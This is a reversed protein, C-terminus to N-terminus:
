FCEKLCVKRLTHNCNKYLLYTPYFFIKKRIDPSDVMYLTAKDSHEGKQILKKCIRRIRVHFNFFNDVRMLIVCKNFLFFLNIHNLDVSKSLKIKKKKRVLEWDFSTVLVVLIDCSLDWMSRDIAIWVCFQSGINVFLQLCQAILFECTACDLLILITHNRLFLHTFDSSSWICINQSITTLDYIFILSNM